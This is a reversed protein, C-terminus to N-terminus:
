IIQSIHRFSSPDIFSNNLTQEMLSPKTQQTTKLQLKEDDSDNSKESTSLNNKLSTTTKEEYDNKQVLM